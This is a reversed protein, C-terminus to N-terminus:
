HDRPAAKAGPAKAGKSKAGGPRFSPKSLLGSVQWSYSGDPGKARRVTPDMDFLGPVKSDPAGFLSKTIDSKSTYAEKFSFTVGLSVTSKDFPERLRVRGEADMKFDKGDTSFESIELQGETVEAKLILNGANLKPLAITGRVKAKGDGVSLDLISLDFSGEAKNMQGAPMFLDVEGSLEGAMPLGIGASLMTMGSVDIKEGVFMLHAEQDDQRLSGSMEGGGLEAEFDVSITDFMYALLSATVSVQDLALTVPPPIKGEVLQTAIETLRVGEAEVGLLGSGSLEGIELRKEAQSRNYEALIRSKLTEYPFTLRVFIVLFLLYFVPVSAIRLIKRQQSSLQVSLKM